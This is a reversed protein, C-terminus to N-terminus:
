LKGYFDSSFNMLHSIMFFTTMSLPNNTKRKSLFGMWIPDLYHYFFYVVDTSRGNERKKIHRNVGIFFSSFIKRLFKRLSAVNKCFPKYWRAGREQVFWFIYGAVENSLTYLLVHSPYVPPQSVPFRSKKLTVNQSVNRKTETKYEEIWESFISGHTEIM